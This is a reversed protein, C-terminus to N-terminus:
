FRTHHDVDSWGTQQTFQDFKSIYEAVSSKGQKLAKLADRAAETTNLPAFRKSFAKVFYNYINSFAMGRRAMSELHPLAWMCAEDEMLNLVAAIWRKNNMMWTNM